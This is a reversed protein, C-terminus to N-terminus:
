AHVRQLGGAATFRERLRSAQARYFAANEEDGAAEFVRAGYAWGVPNTPRLRTRESVLARALADHGGRVAAEIATLSLVDRQANSGGFRVAQDPIALIGEVCAGYDARAFAVLARCLPLGVERIMRGNTGGDAAHREVAALLPDIEATRGAGILAMLAHADNFVYYADGVRRAWDEGLAAFRRGVDQGRLYMRWLLAAADIMQLVVDSRDPRVKEDYLRLAQEVDGLDLHYLALHWWLHLEFANGEEWGRSTEGVWAIGEDLRAQMEMVHAVAHSAWADRPDLEVARRGVDEARAYDGTEELGFAYMGLVQAYGPISGDWAHLAQAVHDRLGTQRGLLFDGLHAVQIAFLDRPHEAVIRAYGRVSRDFDGDLWARAAALHMRERDNARSSLAEGAEVAQRLPQEVPEGATILAGAKFCHGMVFGPDRAIAGDIVELATVSYRSLLETARDYAAVSEANRTSLQVGRVDRLMDNEKPQAKAPSDPAADHFWRSAVSGPAPFRCPQTAPASESHWHAPIAGTGLTRMRM